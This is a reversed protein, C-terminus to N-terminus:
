SQAFAIEWVLKQYDLIRHKWISIWTFVRWLFADTREEEWSVCKKGTVVRQLRKDKRTMKKGWEWRYKSMKWIREEKESAGRWPPLLIWWVLIAESRWCCAWIRGRNRRSSGECARWAWFREFRTEGCCAACRRNGRGAGWPFTSCSWWGCRHGGGGGGSRQSGIRRAWSRVWSRLRRRRRCTRRRDWSSRRWIAATEAASSRVTVMEAHIPHQLPLDSFAVIPLSVATTADNKSYNKDQQKIRKKTSLMADNHSGGLSFTCYAFFLFIFLCFNFSFFFTSLAFTIIIIAHKKWKRGWKNTQQINKHANFNSFVIHVRFCPYPRNRVSDRVSSSVIRKQRRRTAFPKRSKALSPNGLNREKM